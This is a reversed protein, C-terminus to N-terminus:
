KRIWNGFTNQHRDSKYRPTIVEDKVQELHNIDKIRIKCEHVIGRESGKSDFTDTWTIIFEDNVHLETMPKDIKGYGFNQFARHKIGIGHIFIDNGIHQIKITDADKPHVNTWYGTLDIM